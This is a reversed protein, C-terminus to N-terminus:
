YTGIIEKIVGTNVDICNEENKLHDQFGSDKLLARHKAPIRKFYESSGHLRDKADRNYNRFATLIRMFHRREEDAEAPPSM